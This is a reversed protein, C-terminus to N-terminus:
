NFSKRNDASRTGAEFAGGLHDGVKPERDLNSPM